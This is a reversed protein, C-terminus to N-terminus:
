TVAKPEIWNTNRFYPTSRVTFSAAERHVLSSCFEFCSKCQRMPDLKNQRPVIDVQATYSKGTAMFAIHCM